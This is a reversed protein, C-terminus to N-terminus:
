FIELNLGLIESANPLYIMLLTLTIAILIGSFAKISFTSTKGWIGLVLSIILYILLIILLNQSNIILNWLTNFINPNNTLVNQSNFSSTFSDGSSLAILSSSTSSAPLPTSPPEVSAIPSSSLKPTILTENASGKPFTTKPSPILSAIPVNTEEQAIVRPSAVPTLSVAAAEPYIVTVPQPAPTEKPTGFVQVVLITEYGDLNGSTVAVGIEQYNQNLLNARHSPSNLWANVVQSSDVFDIALNEGAYKYNYNNKIFWYWPTLGDPSNHAFYKKSLMDSAKEKAIENLLPNVKLENLGNQKRYENTLNLIVNSNVEAFFNTTPVYYIVLLPITKILVAILIYTIIAKKRLSFPYFNNEPTPLFFNKIKPSFNLKTKQHNM